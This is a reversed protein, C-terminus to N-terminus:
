SMTFLFSKMKILIWVCYFASSYINVENLEKNLYMDDENKSVNM